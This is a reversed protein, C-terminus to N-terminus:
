QQSLWDLAAERTPFSRLDQKAFASIAQILIGMMAGVGIIATAKIRPTVSAAADKSEKATKPGYHTNTVDALALVSKPPQQSVLAVVERFLRIQEEEDKLASFDAMLIQKGKHTIFRIRNEAM